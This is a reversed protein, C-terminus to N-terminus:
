SPPRITVALNLLKSSVTLGSEVAAALDIEFRVRNDQVVFNVIGRSRRDRAGDTVTLIPVARLSELMAPATEANSPHIYAIHCGSDRAVTPLRRVVMPRAVGPGQTRVAEDVLQAVADDGVVCLHLPSSPGEFASAPWEVFPAFKYLYTAKIASELARTQALIRMPLLALCIGLCAFGLGIARPARNSGM